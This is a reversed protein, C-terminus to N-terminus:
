PLCDLLNKYMFRSFNDIFVMIYKQFNAQKNSFDVLDIATDKWPYSPRFRDTTGGKRTQKYLQHLKQSKLWKNIDRKSPHKAPLDEKLLKFLADRGFTYGDEYYYKKLIKDVSESVKLGKKLKDTM